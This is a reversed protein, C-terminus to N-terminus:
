KADCIQVNILYFLEYVDEMLIEIFNDQIMGGTVPYILIVNEDIELIYTSIIVKLFRISNVREYIELLLSLVEILGDLSEQDGLVLTPISYNEDEIEIGQYLVGEHIFFQERDM